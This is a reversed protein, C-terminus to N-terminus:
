CCLLVVRLDFFLIHVDDREVFVRPYYIRLSLQGSILNSPSPVEAFAIEECAARFKSLMSIDSGGRSPGSRTIGCALMSQWRRTVRAGACTGTTRCASMMM